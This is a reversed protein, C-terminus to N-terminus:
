KSCNYSYISEAIKFDDEYDIDLSKLKDLTYLFPRKGIRDKSGLFNEYNSIFAGSNVEYIPKLTQTRPWKVINRDYNIPKDENWLFSKIETCTMLSDYGQEQRIYYERILDGYDESNLFPSTVHTWLIDGKPLISYAYHILEDTTTYDTCLEDDRYDITIKSSNLGQAYNIIKIDDTSLYIKNILDTKLLQGLKIEILGFSKDAFPRINKNPVRKSGSRCPLFCNM